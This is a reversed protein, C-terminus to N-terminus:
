IHSIQIILILYTTAVNIFKLMLKIDISLMDYVFIKLPWAEILEMFVKAQIRMSRPLDYNLIIENVLLKTNHRVTLLNQCLFCLVAVSLITLLCWIVDDFILIEFYNEPNRYLKITDWILILVNIFTCLLTMFIQFQFVDNSLYCTVGLTNYMDALDRLKTNSASIRGIFNFQKDSKREKENINFIQTKIEDKEHIFVSLYENVVRLRITCLYLLTCFVLMQLNQELYMLYLMIIGALCIFDEMAETWMCFLDISVCVIHVMIFIILAKILRIRSKEYFKENITIHLKSDLEAVNYLICRTPEYVFLSSAMICAGYQIIVMISPIIDTIIVLYSGHHIKFEDKFKLSILTVYLSAILIGGIKKRVSVPELENNVVSFRIIGFINEFIIIPKITSIVNQVQSQKITEEKPIDVKM